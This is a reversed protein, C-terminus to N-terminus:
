IKEGTPLGFGAGAGSVRKAMPLSPNARFRAAKSVAVPVYAPVHFKRPSCTPKSPRGGIQSSRPSPSDQEGVSSFTNSSIQRKVLLTTMACILRALERAPLVHFGFGALRSRIGVRPALTRAAM